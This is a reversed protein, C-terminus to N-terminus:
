QTYMNRSVFSTKGFSGTWSISVTIALLNPNTADIRITGRGQQGGAVNSPDSLGPVNFNQNPPSYVMPIQKFTQGKIEEIKSAV